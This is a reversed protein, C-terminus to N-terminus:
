FALCLKLERRVTEEGKGNRAERGAVIKVFTVCLCDGNGINGFRTRNNYKRGELEEESGTVRQM